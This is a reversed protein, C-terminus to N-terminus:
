EKILRYYVTSDRTAYGLTFTGSAGKYEDITAVKEPSFDFHCASHVATLGDWLMLAVAWSRTVGILVAHGNADAVFLEYISGSVLPLVEGDFVVRNEGGPPPNLLAFFRM